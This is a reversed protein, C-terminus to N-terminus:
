RGPYARYEDTYLIPRFFLDLIARRAKQDKTMRGKRRLTAHDAAYVFQSASGVLLTINNPFYHSRCFSEFGDAALNENPRRTSSQESEFALVQRAARSIRNSITDTSAGHARAIASLSECSSLRRVIDEYSLVRKAYYNPRFTQESFTKGCVTCRFRQVEGFAKTSYSGWAIYDIYPHAHVGAHCRCRRSACFPPLLLRM